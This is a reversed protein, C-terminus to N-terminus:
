ATRAPVDIRDVACAQQPVVRFMRVGRGSSRGPICPLMEALPTRSVERLWWLWIVGSTEPIKLSVKASPLNPMRNEAAYECRLRNSSPELVTRQSRPLLEPPKLGADVGTSTVIACTLVANWGRM